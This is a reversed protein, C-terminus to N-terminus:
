RRQRRAIMVTGAIAVVAAAVRAVGLAEGPLFGGIPLTAAPGLGRTLAVPGAGLRRIAESALGLSTSYAAPLTGLAEAAGDDTPM